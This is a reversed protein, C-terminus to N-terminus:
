EKRTELEVIGKLQKILGERIKRNEVKRFLQILTSEESSLPRDSQLPKKSPYKEHSESVFLSKEREFFREVPVGLAMAIRQIMEVSIKNVGREYKQIQQFSVGVREALRMQSIGFFKRIRKIEAGIEKHSKVM